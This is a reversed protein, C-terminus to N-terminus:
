SVIVIIFAKILAYTEFVVTCIILAFYMKKYFFFTKETLFRTGSYTIKHYYFFIFYFSSSLTKSFHTNQPHSELISYIRFHSSTFPSVGSVYLTTEARLLVLKKEETVIKKKTLLNFIQRTWINNNSIEAVAYTPLVQFRCTHINYKSPYKQSTLFLVTASIITTTTTMM